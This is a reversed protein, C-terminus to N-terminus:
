KAKKKPEPRPVQANMRDFLRKLRTVVEPHEAAVNHLEHPDTQLDYLETIENVNQILKWRRTRISRCHRLASVTEERHTESQGLLLPAFSVADIHEQPPLSALECLTANLDILEVPADTVTGAAIGPGAAALPVRLAGEYMVHKTYLGHDGLM